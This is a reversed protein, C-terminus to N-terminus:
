WGRTRINDGGHVVFGQLSETFPGGPTPAPTSDVLNPRAEGKGVHELWRITDKARDRYNPDAGADPNYGRAVLLTYTALVACAEKIDNSVVTLPLQFHNRLYSDIKDSASGIAAAAQGSALSDFAVSPAGYFQLDSVMCYSAM